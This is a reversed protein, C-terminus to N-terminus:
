RCLSSAVIQVHTGDKLEYQGNGLWTVLQGDPLCCYFYSGEDDGPLARCRREIRYIQGDAAVALMEIARKTYIRM